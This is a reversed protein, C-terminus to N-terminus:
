VQINALHLEKERGTFLTSRLEQSNQLFFFFINFLQMVQLIPILHM